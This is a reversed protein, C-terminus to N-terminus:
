NKENNQLAILEKEAKECVLAVEYFLKRAKPLNIKHEGILEMEKLQSLIHRELGVFSISTGIKHAMLRITDFDGQRLATELTNMDERNQELFISIMSMFFDTRGRSLTALHTLDTVTGQTRADGRGNGSAPLAQEPRIIHLLALMLSHLKEKQFPKTVCADIGSQTCKERESDSDHGTMAIIPLTMGAERIKRATDYGNLVPMEIDLLVIQFNSRELLGLAESGNEAMSYSFGQEGLFAATLERSLLSDDALLVNVQQDASTRM